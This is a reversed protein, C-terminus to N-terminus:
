EVAAMPPFQNVAWIVDEMQRRTLYKVEDRSRKTNRRRRMRLVTAPNETSCM